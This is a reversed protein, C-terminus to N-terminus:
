PQGAVHRSAPSAIPSPQRSVGAAAPLQGPRRRPRPLIKFLTDLKTIAFVELIQKRINCLRLQGNKERIRSNVNILM